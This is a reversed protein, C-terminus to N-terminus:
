LTCTCREGGAGRVKFVRNPDIKGTVILNLNEPRYFAAHYDVVKAHSTSERLNRLIGGTQSKLGCDGPYLSRLMELHVRSYPLSFSM